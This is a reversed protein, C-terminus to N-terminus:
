DTKRKLVLLEEIDQEPAHDTQFQPKNRFQIPLHSYTITDEYELM